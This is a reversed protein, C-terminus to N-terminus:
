TNAYDNRVSRLFSFPRISTQLMELKYNHLM